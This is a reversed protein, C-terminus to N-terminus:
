ELPKLKLFLPTLFTPTLWTLILSVVFMSLATAPWWLAPLHGILWYVIIVLCLGLLLELGSAKVKDRRWSELNQKSLGYRHSLAFGYYYSLPSVIVGYGAALTLLHSVASWPFPSALLSALTTSTPILLVILLLLAGIGLKIFSGRRLLKNYERAKQQRNPDPVIERLKELDEGM